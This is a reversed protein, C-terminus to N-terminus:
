SRRWNGAMVRKGTNGSVTKEPFAVSEEEDLELELKAEEELEVGGVVASSLALKCESEEFCSTM